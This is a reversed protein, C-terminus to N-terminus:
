SPAGYELLCAHATLETRYLLPSKIRQDRTRNGYPGGLIILPNCTTIATQSGRKKTITISKHHIDGQALTIDSILLGTNELNGLGILQKQLNM